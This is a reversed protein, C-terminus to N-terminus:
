NWLVFLLSSSTGFRESSGMSSLKLLKLLFRVLVTDIFTLLIIDRPSYYNFAFKFSEKGEFIRSGSNLQLLKLSFEVKEYFHGM